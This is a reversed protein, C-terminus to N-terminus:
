LLTLYYFSNIMIYVIYFFIFDCVGGIGSGSYDVVVIPATVSNLSKLTRQLTEVDDQYYLIGITYDKSPNSKNIGISPLGFGIFFQACALLTAVISLVRVFARRRMMKVVICGGSHFLPPSLPSLLSPHRAFLLTWSSKASLIVFLFTTVHLIPFLFEDSYALRDVGCISIQVQQNQLECECM